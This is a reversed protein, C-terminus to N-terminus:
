MPNLFAVFPEQGAPNDPKVFAGTVALIAATKCLRGM